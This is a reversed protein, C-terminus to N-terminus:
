SSLYLGFMMVIIAIIDSYKIKQKLYLSIFLCQIIFGLLYGSLFLFPVSYKLTQGIWFSPLAFTWQCLIFLENRILTTIFTENKKRPYLLTLLSFLSALSQLIIYLFIINM